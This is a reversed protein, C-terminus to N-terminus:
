VLGVVEILYRGGGGRHFIYAWPDHTNEEESLPIKICAKSTNGNTTINTKWGHGLVPQMVLMNDSSPETSGPFAGVVVAGLSTQTEQRWHLQHKLAMTLYLLLNTDQVCVNQAPSNRM